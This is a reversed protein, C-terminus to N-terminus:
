FTKGARFHMHERLSKCIRYGGQEEVFFRNLREPSIDAVMVGPTCVAGHKKWCDSM